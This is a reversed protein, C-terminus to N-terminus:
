YTKKKLTHTHKFLSFYPSFSNFSPGAPLTKIIRESSAVKDIKALADGIAINIMDELMPYVKENKIEPNM